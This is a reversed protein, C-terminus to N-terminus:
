KKRQWSEVGYLADLHNGLSVIDKGSGAVMTRSFLTMFPLQEHFLTELSGIGAAVEGVSPADRVKELAEDAATWSAFNLYSSTHLMDSSDPRSSVRYEGYMADFQRAMCNEQYRQGEQMEIEMQVGLEKLDQQVALLYQERIGKNLNCLVKFSFPQDGRKRIEGDLKWGANDLLRGAEAPDYGEAIQSTPFPSLGTQWPNAPVLSWTDWFRKLHAQRNVAFVLARRVNVDGFLPHPKETKLRELTDRDFLDVDQLADAQIPNFAIFAFGMDNYVDAKLNAIVDQRRDIPLPWAYDLKGSLLLQYLTERERVFAFGLDPRGEQLSKLVLSESDGPSVPKYPGFVVLDEGWARTWQEVPIPEFFHKPIIFGENLDLLNYPSKRSFDAVLTLESEAVLASIHTKRNSDLWAVAPNIQVSYTYVVDEATLPAGDSWHLNAKLKLRIRLGDELIEYNEVLMPKLLPVGNVFEPAERFLTPYLRSAIVAGISSTTIYPHLSDPAQRTGISFRLPQLEPVPAKCGFIVFIFLFLSTRKM